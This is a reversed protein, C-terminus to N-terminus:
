YYFLGWNKEAEELLPTKLREHPGYSGNSLDIVQREM